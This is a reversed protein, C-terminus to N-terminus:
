YLLKDIVVDGPPRPDDDDHIVSQWHALDFTASFNGTVPDGTKRVRVRYDEDDGLNADPDDAPDYDLLENALSGGSVDTSTHTGAFIGQGPARTNPYPRALMHHVWGHHLEQRTSELTMRYRRLERPGTVPRTPDDLISIRHLVDNGGDIDEAMWLHNLGVTMAHSTRDHNFPRPFAFIGRGTELDALYISHRAVTGWLYDHGDVSMSALAQSPDVGDDDEKNASPMHHPVATGNVLADWPGSLALHISTSGALSPSGSIRVPIEDRIHFRVIGRRVRRRHSAYSSPDFSVYLDSGVREVGHLQRGDIQYEPQDLDAFTSTNAGLDMRYVRSIGGDEWDNFYLVDSGGEFAYALGRPSVVGAPLSDTGAYTLTLSGPTVSYRRVRPSGSTVLVYLTAGTDDDQFALGRITALGLTDDSSELDGVGHLSVAALNETSAGTSASHSLEEEEATRAEAPPAALLSSIALLSLLTLGAQRLWTASATPAAPRGRDPLRDM